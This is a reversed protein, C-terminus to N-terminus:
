RDNCAPRYQRVLQVYRFNRGAAGCLEFSFGTPQRDTLETDPDECCRMLEQRINDTQGIFIWEQASSIGYVGSCEPAHALISAVAFPRPRSFNYHM